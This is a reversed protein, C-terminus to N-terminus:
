IKKENTEIYFKGEKFDKRILNREIPSQIAGYWEVLMMWVDQPVITYDFNEVLGPKLQNDSGIL